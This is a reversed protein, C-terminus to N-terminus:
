GGSKVFKGLCLELCIGMIPPSLRGKGSRVRCSGEEESYLVPLNLPNSTSGGNAELSVPSIQTLGILFQQIIGM